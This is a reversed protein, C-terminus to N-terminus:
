RTFITATPLVSQLLVSLIFISYYKILALKAWPLLYFFYLQLFLRPISFYEEEVFIQHIPNRGIRLDCGNLRERFQVNKFVCVRVCVRIACWKKKKKETTPKNWMKTTSRRECLFYMWPGYTVSQFTKRFFSNLKRWLSDYILLRVLFYIWPLICFPLCAFSFPHHCAM